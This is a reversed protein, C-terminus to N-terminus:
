ENARVRKRPPEEEGEAEDLSSELDELFRNREHIPRYWPEMNYLDKLFYKALGSVATPAAENFHLRRIVTAAHDIEEATPEPGRVRLECLGDVDDNNVWVFHGQAGFGRERTPIMVRVRVIGTAASELQFTVQGRHSVTANRISDIPILEDPAAKLVVVLNKALLFFVLLSDFQCRRFTSEMMNKVQNTLKTDNAIKQRYEELATSVAAQCVRAVDHLKREELEYDKRTKVLGHAGKVVKRKVPQPAPLGLVFNILPNVIVSRLLSREVDTVNALPPIAPLPASKAEAAAKIRESRPRQWGEEFREDPTVSPLPPLPPPVPLEDLQLDDSDLSFDSSSSSLSSSLPSFFDSM